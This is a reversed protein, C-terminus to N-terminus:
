GGFCASQVRETAEGAYLMGLLIYNADDQGNRVIKAEFRIQSVSFKVRM